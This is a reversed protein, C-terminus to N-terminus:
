CLGGHHQVLQEALHVPGHLVRTVPTVSGQLITTGEAVDAVEV